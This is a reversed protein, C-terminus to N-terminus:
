RRGAFSRLVRSELHIEATGAVVKVHNQRHRSAADSATQASHLEGIWDPLGRVIVTRAAGLNLLHLALAPNRQEDIGTLAAAKVLDEHSCSIPVHVADRPTTHRLQHLQTYRLPAPQPIQDALTVLQYDPTYEWHMTATVRAHALLDLYMAAEEIAYDPRVFVWPTLYDQGRLGVEAALLPLKLEDALSRWARWTEPRAGGWTHFAVAGYIRSNLEAQRRAFPLLDPSAVDGLVFRTALGRSRFDAELATLFATLDEATWQIRIGLSPENFSFFDPEFGLKTKAYELYTGIGEILEPWNAPDVKRGTAYFGSGPDTFLWEPATWVAAVVPCNLAQLKRYLDFRVRLEPQQVNEAFATWNAQLPDDNDNVPEWAALDLETRVWAPSLGRLTFDTAPTDYQFCYNGGIGAFPHAAGAAPQLTIDVPSRDAKGSVSLAFTTAAPTSAKLVGRHFPVLLVYSDDGWRRNDQFGAGEVPPFDISCTRGGDATTVTGRHAESFFIHANPSSEVPLVAMSEGRYSLLSCVGGAFIRAPFRIVAYIGELDLDASSSVKLLFRPGPDSADFSLHATIRAEDIVADCSWTEIGRPGISHAAPALGSSGSLSVVRKWGPLAIWLDSSIDLPESDVLIQRIAGNAGVIFPNDAAHGRPCCSVGAAALLASAAIALFNVPVCPTVPHPTPRHLPNAKM